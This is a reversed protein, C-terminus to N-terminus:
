IGWKNKLYTIVSDRDADSLAATYYALEGIYSNSAEGSASKGLYITKSGLSITSSNTCTTSVTGGSTTTTSFYRSTGSTMKGFLITPTDVTYARDCGSNDNATQFHLAPPSSSLTNLELALDNDKDGHYFFSGWSNITSRVVVVMFLSANSSNNFASGTMGGGGATGRFDLGPYGNILTASYTPTTGSTLNHGSGSIDAWATVQAGSLTLSSSTAADLQLALNATVPITITCGTATSSAGTTCTASLTATGTYSTANCAITTANYAVTSSAAIGTGTVPCTIATCSGSSVTLTAGNTTCAPVTVSGSYGAANCNVSASSTNYAATASSLGTVNTVNCTVSADSICGSATLNQGNSTCTSSLTGTGHYASANCAHTTDNYAATTSSAIGTGTVNCTVSADSICGSATLNQGNSTCTGSLTGTGHYGSANCARTSAGYGVTASSAIGTGTVNCNISGSTVCSIAVNSIDSSGTTGSANATTCVYGSAQTLVTVAYSTSANLKTGFTFSTAGSNLTLNDGANNQLVLGSAGLGSITGGISFTSICSLSINNINTTSVSGSGNSVSCVYGSPQSAVTVAYTGGSAIATSFLFQTANASVSLTDGGNNKLTLGSAALGSITGGVTRATTACTIVVTAIASAVVKGTGTAISCTYSPPLTAVSVAYAGGTPVASAFTFSTSGSAVSLNDGLNNQLVLGSATLGSITGGITYTNKSCSVTIGSVNGATITAANGALICTYGSPQSSVSLQDTSTNIGASVFSFSSAGADIKLTEGTKNSLVLGSASLGSITGGISYTSATTTTTSSDVQPLPAVVFKEVNGDDTTDGVAFGSPNPTKSTDVAYSTATASLAFCQEAKLTGSVASTYFDNFTSNGGSPLYWKVIAGSPMTKIKYTGDSDSGTATPTNMLPHWFGVPTLTLKNAAEARNLFRRISTGKRLDTSATGSAVCGDSDGAASPAGLTITFGRANEYYGGGANKWYSLKGENTDPNLSFALFTLNALADNAQSYARHSGYSDDGLTATAINTGANFDLVGDSAIATSALPAAMHATRLEGNLTAVKTSADLTRTYTISMLQFKPESEGEDLGLFPPIGETISYVSGSFESNSSNHPSHNVGISRKLGDSLTAVIAIHYVPFGGSDALQEFTASTVTVGAGLLGRLSAALDIPANPTPLVELPHDKKQQCLAAMGLGLTQDMLANVTAAQTRTFSVLCAEGSKSKGDKTGLWKIPTLSADKTGYLMDQDFDYCTEAELNVTKELVTPLCSEATGHVLADQEALKAKLSKANPDFSDDNLNLRLGAAAPKPFVSLALSGPFANAIEKSTDAPASVVTAFSSVEGSSAAKKGFSGNNSCYILSFIVPLAIGINILIARVVTKHTM